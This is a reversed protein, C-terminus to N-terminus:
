QFFHGDQGEAAFTGGLVVTAGCLFLAWPRGGRVLLGFTLAAAGGMLPSMGDLATYPTVVESISAGIVSSLAGYVPGLLLGLLPHLVDHLPWGSGGGGFRISISVFGFAIVAAAAGAM